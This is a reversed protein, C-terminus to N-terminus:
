KYLKSTDTFIAYDYIGDNNTKKQEKLFDMKDDLGGNFLDDLEAM